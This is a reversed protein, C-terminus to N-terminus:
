QTGGPYRPRSHGHGRQAPNFAISDVRGINVGRYRVPAAAKLGVVSHRTVLDLALLKPGKTQGLWVAGVIAAIILVIVFLGAVLSHSQNEM